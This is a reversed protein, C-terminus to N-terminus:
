SPTPGVGRVTLIHSVELVLRVRAFHGETVTIAQYSGSAQDRKCGLCWSDKQCVVGCDHEIEIRLSTFPAINSM